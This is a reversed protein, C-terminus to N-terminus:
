SPYHVNRQQPLNKPHKSPGSHSYIYIILNRTGLNKSQQFINLPPVIQDFDTQIGKMAKLKSVTQIKIEKTDKKVEVQVGEDVMEERIGRLIEEVGKTQIGEDKQKALVVLRHSDGSGLSDSSEMVSKTQVGGGGVELLKKGSKM